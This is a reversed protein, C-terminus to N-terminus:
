NDRLVPNDLTFKNERVMITRTQPIYFHDIKMENRVTDLIANRLSSVGSKKTEIKVLHDESCVICLVHDLWPGEGPASVQGERIAKALDYIKQKTIAQADQIELCNLDVIKDIENYQNM